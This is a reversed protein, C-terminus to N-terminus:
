LKQYNFICYSLQETEEHGETKAYCMHKIYYVVTFLKKTFM